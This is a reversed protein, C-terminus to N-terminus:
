MNYYRPDVKVPAVKVFPISSTRKFGELGAFATGGMIAKVYDIRRVPERRTDLKLLACREMRAQLAADKYGWFAKSTSEQLSVLHQLGDYIAACVDEATVANRDRVGAFRNPAGRQVHFTWFIPFTESFRFMVAMCYAYPVVAPIFYNYYNVHRPFISANWPTSSEHDRPDFRMDWYLEFSNFRPDKTADYTAPDLEKHLRPNADTRPVKSVNRSPPM